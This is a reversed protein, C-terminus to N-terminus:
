PPNFAFSLTQTQIYICKAFLYFGEEAKEAEHVQEHMAVEVELLVKSLKQLYM